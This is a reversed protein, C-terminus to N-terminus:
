PISGGITRSSGGYIGFTTFAYSQGPALFGGVDFTVAGDGDAELKEVEEAGYVLTVLETARYGTCSLLSTEISLECVPMPTDPPGLSIFVNVNTGAPHSTGVEPETRIIFGKQVDDSTEYKDFIDLPRPLRALAESWTLGVVDPITYRKSGPPQDPPPTDEPHAKAVIIRITADVSVKTGPPPKTRLVQGADETTTEEEDVMVNPFGAAALEAKAAAQTLATVDPLQVTPEKAVFVRITEDLPIETGPAPETRLVEGADEEATLEPVVEVDVFGAAALEAEADSQTLATVDPLGKAEAERALWFGLGLLLILLAAALVAPKTSRLPRQRVSITWPGVAQVEFFQPGHNIRCSGSYAQTTNVLSKTSHSNIARAYFFNGAENGTINAVSGDGAFRAVMDGEGNFSTSFRPIASLPLVEIRWPGTASVELCTSEGGNWDLPRIGRYPRLTIVLDEESGVARVGFYRSAENGTIRVAAPGPVDKTLEVVADGSGTLVIGADRGEKASRQGRAAAVRAAIRSGIRAFLTPQPPEAYTKRRRFVSASTHSAEQNDETARRQPQRDPPPDQAAEPEPQSGLAHGASRVAQVAATLSVRRRQRLSTPQGTSEQVTASTGPGAAIAPEESGSSARRRAPRVLALLALVVVLGGVLVAMPWINPSATDGQSPQEGADVAAGEDPLRVATRFRVEGTKVAVEAVAPLEGPAQFTVLYQEGLATALRGYSEVVDAPDTRLVSGGAQDVVQSWSGDGGTQAVNIVAQAQSVAEVLQEVSLGHEDSGNTHVIIARPGPPATSLEQAALLTAAATSRTGEPRLASLASLAGAPDPSLPAVISPEGGSTVVMINAGEPLQLLFDITGRQMPGFLEATMDAATDIVLAVSLSRSAMPTVSATVPRGGVTVSLDEPALGREPQVGPAALVMSIQAGPATHVAVVQPDASAAHAPYSAVPVFLVFALVVSAVVGTARNRDSRRLHSFWWTTV